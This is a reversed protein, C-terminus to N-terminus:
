IGRGKLPLAYWFLVPYGPYGLIGWSVGPYGDSFLAPYGLIGWGSDHEFRLELWGM